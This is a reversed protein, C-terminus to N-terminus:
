NRADASHAETSSRAERRAGCNTKYWAVLQRKMDKQYSTLTVGAYQRNLAELQRCREDALAGVSTFSLLLGACVLRRSHRAFVNSTTLTMLVTGMKSLLFCFWSCQPSAARALLNWPKPNFFGV